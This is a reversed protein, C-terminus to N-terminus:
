RECPANVVDTGLTLMKFYGESMEYLDHIKQPTPVQLCDIEHAGIAGPSIFPGEFHIGPIQKLLGRKEVAHKIIPPNRRYIEPRSTIITPLFRETGSELVYDIARMVMEENLEMGSFNTGVAGNVQLDIWGPNKM